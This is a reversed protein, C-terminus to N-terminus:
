VRAIMIYDTFVDRDGVEKDCLFGHALGDSTYAGSQYARYYPLTECLQQRKDAWVSPQGHPEPKDQQANVYYAAKPAAKNAKTTKTTKRKAAPEDIESDAGENLYDTDRRSSRSKRKSTIPPPNVIELETQCM